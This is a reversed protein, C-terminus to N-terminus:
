CGDCHWWGQEVGYFYIESCRRVDFLARHPGEAFPWEMGEGRFCCDWAEQLRPWKYKPPFKGPLRTHPTMAEMTCFPHLHMLPYSAAGVRKYESGLVTLDYKINHAVVLNLGRGKRADEVLFTLHNIVTSLPFGKALMMDGDIGHIRTAEPSPFQDMEDPQVLFSYEKLKHTEEGDWEILQAGLECLRAKYPDTGTTETDVFLLRSM